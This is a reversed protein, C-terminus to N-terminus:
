IRRRNYKSYSIFIIVAAMLIFIVAAPLKSGPRETASVTKTAEISRRSERGKSNYATVAFYWPGDMLGTITYSTALSRTDIVDTYGQSTRGYYIRYGALDKLSSGNENTTPATWKLHVDAPTVAPAVQSFMPVLLMTVLLSRMIRFIEIPMLSNGNCEYPPM